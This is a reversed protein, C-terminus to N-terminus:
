LRIDTAPTAWQADIVTSHEPLAPRYTSDQAMRDAVSAHIWAGDPIRRRRFLLLAWLWSVRHIRGMAYTPEVSCYRQYKEINLLLGHEAAGEIM